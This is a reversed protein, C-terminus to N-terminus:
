KFTPSLQTQSAANKQSQNQAADASFALFLNYCIGAAILLYYIKKHKVTPKSSNLLQNLKRTTFVQVM